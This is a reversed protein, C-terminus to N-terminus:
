QKCYKYGRGSVEPCLSPVVVQAGDAGATGGVEPVVVVPPNGVEPAGVVVAIEVLLHHLRQCDALLSRHYWLVTILHFLPYIDHIVVNLM